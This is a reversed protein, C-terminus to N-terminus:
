NEFPNIDNAMREFTQSLNDQLNLFERMQEKPVGMAMLADFVKDLTNNIQEAKREDFM